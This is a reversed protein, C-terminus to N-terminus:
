DGTYGWVLQTLRPLACSKISIVSDPINIEELSEFKYFLVGTNSFAYEGIETVTSPLEIKQVNKTFSRMTEGEIYSTDVLIKTIRSPYKLISYNQVNATYGVVVGYGEDSSDNSQWIFVDESAATKDWEESNFPEKPYVEYNSSIKFEYGEHRALFGAGYLIVTSDEQQQRLENELLQRKEEQTMQKTTEEALLSAVALKM